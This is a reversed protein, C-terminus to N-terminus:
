GAETPSPALEAHSTTSAATPFVPDSASTPSSANWLDLTTASTTRVYVWLQLQTTYITTTTATRLLPILYRSSKIDGSAIM